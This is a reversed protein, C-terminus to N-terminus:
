EWCGGKLAECVVIFRKILSAASRIEEKLKANEAQLETKDNLDIHWQNRIEENEDRLKEYKNANLYVALIHPGMSACGMQDCNHEECPYDAVIFVRDLADHYGEIREAEEGFYIKYWVKDM